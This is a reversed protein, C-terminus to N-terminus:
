LAAKYTWAGAEGIQIVTCRFEVGIESTDVGGHQLFPKAKFASGDEVFPEFREIDEIDLKDWAKISDL